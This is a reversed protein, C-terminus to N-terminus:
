APLYRKTRSGVKAKLRDLLAYGGAWRGYGSAINIHGALGLNQVESKWVHGYTMLLDLPMYPDNLSGVTLTPFPLPEQPMEHFDMVGPHLKETAWLDCPAVLLAGKVRRAAPRGALQATLLCGLSHAVLFAEGAKELEIELNNLWDAQRPYTWSEQQVIHSTPDERAWFRQWHGDNSGNLGPIILTSVM